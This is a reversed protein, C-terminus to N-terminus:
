AKRRSANEGDTSKMSRRLAETLEIVNEGYRSMNMTSQESASRRKKANHKLKGPEFPAARQDVIHVGLDIMDKTIKVKQISQFLDAPDRVQDAARLTTILMGTERAELLVPHESGDASISGLAAKNTAKMIERIVAFADHGVPGNPAVYYSDLIYVTDIESRSVFQDLEIMIRDDGPEIEEKGDAVRFLQVPCTVLSLRLFGTLAGRRHGGDQIDHLRAEIKEDLAAMVFANLTVAENAAAFAVKRHLSPPIRVNFLGKFPRDPERGLEACSELYDEVLEAFAAQVDSARDVEATILDDIHLIRLVLKGDEFTVEGQYDGHRITTM